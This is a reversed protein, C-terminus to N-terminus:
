SQDKRALRRSYILERLAERELAERDALGVEALYGGLDAPAPRGLRQEFYWALLAPADLGVDALRPSELGGEALLRQKHWARRALRAYDGTARLEDVVRRDLEDRYREQLWALEAQRDVFAGYSERTLGQEALWVEFRQEAAAAEPSGGGEAGVAGVTGAAGAAARLGRDAALARAAHDALGTRRALAGAAVRNLGGALAARGGHGLLRVEAALLEASVAQLQPALPPQTEAWDVVQDWAETHAFSFAPPPPAAGAQRCARVAELLALADARKQDVRGSGLFGRLAEIEPAPAGEELARALLRPYSRDPYFLAKAMTELRRRTASTVVGAREAAHLTARLNVMAESTARYGTGAEGHAVAVEDDDELAGSLFAQFIEGVGQMGFSALEAARLAGMSAAGFVHIGRSLAWLIEKHWVAPLREFYGDVIGIAFPRENAARYLDGQAVPPLYTAELLARAEEQSLTPGLFIFVDNM